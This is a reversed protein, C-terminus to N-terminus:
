KISPLATHSKSREKGPSTITSMEELGQTKSGRLQRNQALIKQQRDNKRYSRHDMGTIGLTVPKKTASAGGTTGDGDPSVCQFCLPCSNFADASGGNLKRASFWNLRFNSWKQYMMTYRECLKEISPMLVCCVQLRKRLTIFDMHGTGDAFSRLHKVQLVLQQLNQMYAADHMVAFFLLADPSRDREQMLELMEVEQDEYEEKAEALQENLEEVQNRLDQIEQSYAEPGGMGVSTQDDFEIKQKKKKKHDRGSGLNHRVCRDRLMELRQGVEVQITVYL